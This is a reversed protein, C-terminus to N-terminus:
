KDVFSIIGKGIDVLGKLLKNLGGDGWVLEQFQGKLGELKKTLGGMATEFETQASGASTLASNTANIAQDFNQLGSVLVNINHKGAIDEMLANFNDNMSVMADNDENWVTGLQQYVDSLERIITYGDKLAGNSDRMTLGFENFQKELDKTMLNTLITKYGNASKSANQTIETSATMLGLLHEFDVGALNASSAVKGISQSLDTSSIAYNNSVQNLADVIHSAESNTMNYAKMTQILVKASDSASIAGDAITQFTMAQEALDLSDQLGYGSKSFETVADTVASASTSMSEALKFAQDTFGSLNDKAESSVKQLEILSDDLDKVSKVAEGISSTMLGIIATVMGFKLVKGFTETFDQGLTKVNKSTNKITTGLKEGSANFKDIEVRTNGTSDTLKSMTTSAVKLETIGKARVDVPLKITQSTLAVQASKQLKNQDVIASVTYQRNTNAM